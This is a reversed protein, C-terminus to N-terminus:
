RSCTPLSPSLAGRQHAADIVPILDRVAGSAGPYQLLVGFFEGDPLGGSTDAVVVDIGLPEARTQVVAITQPFCDADVLFAGPTRTSRRALMM